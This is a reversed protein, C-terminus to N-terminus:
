NPELSRLRVFVDREHGCGGCRVSARRLREDETEHVAHEVVHCRGGCRPCPLAEARPEVAATSTVEIPTEESAGPLRAELRDRRQRAQEEDALVDELDARHQDQADVRRLVRLAVLLASGVAGLWLGIEIASM